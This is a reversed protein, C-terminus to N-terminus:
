RHRTLYPDRILVAGCVAGCLAGCVAVCVAVHVAVCRYDTVPEAPIVFRSYLSQGKSNVVCVRALNNQRSNEGM